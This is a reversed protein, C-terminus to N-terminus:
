AVARCFSCKIGPVYINNLLNRRKRKRQKINPYSDGVHILDSSLIPHKATGLLFGLKNTPLGRRM